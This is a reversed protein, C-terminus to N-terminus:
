EKIFNELKAIIANITATNGHELCAATIFYLYQDDSILIESSLHKIRQFVEDPKEKTLQELVWLSEKAEKASLQEPLKELAKEPSKQAYQKWFDQGANPGRPFEPHYAEIISEIRAKSFGIYM